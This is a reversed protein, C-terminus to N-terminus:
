NNDVNWPREQYKILLIINFNIFRIRINQEIKFQKLKPLALPLKFDKRLTDM